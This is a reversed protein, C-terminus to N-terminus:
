HMGCARGTTPLHQRRRPVLGNWKCGNSNAPTAAPSAEACAARMCPQQCYSGGVLFWRMGSVDLAAPLPQRRCPGLAHRTRADNSAPAAAPSTKICATHLWNKSAPAALPVAEACATQKWQHQCTSGGALGWRMGSAHMTAPLLQRRRPMSSHGRYGNNSAPAAALLAGVCAAQMWPQQCSNGGALCRRTGSAHITEPLLQRKRPM